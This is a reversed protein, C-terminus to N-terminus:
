RQNATQRWSPRKSRIFWASTIASRLGIPALCIKAECHRHERSRYQRRRGARLGLAPRDIAAIGGARPIGSSSFYCFCIDRLESDDPGIAGSVRCPM